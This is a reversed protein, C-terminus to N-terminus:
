NSLATRYREDRYFLHVGIRTTNTFTRSWRPRVATTHYYTAGGTLESKLGNLAARAVKAVRQYAKKENIVEKHGDCTYTFQCQYKRGTGQKIVGCLSNPFQASKVRNLIVEAVAFQGKVTEGRAEFYLAEALCAFQEGGAAKPQADLWAKSYEIQPRAKRSKFANNRIGFFGSFKRAPVASLSAQEREILTGLGTEAAVSKGMAITAAMVAIMTLLKM